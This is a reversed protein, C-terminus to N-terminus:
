LKYDDLEDLLAHSSRCFNLIFERKPLHTLDAASLFLSHTLKYDDLEDLLAHADFSHQQALAILGPQISRSGIDLGDAEHEDDPSPDDAGFSTLDIDLAAAESSM